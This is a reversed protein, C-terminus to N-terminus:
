TRAARTKVARGLADGWSRAQEVEGSRLPGETGTVVFSVPTAARSWGQQRLARAIGRSASGTLIQPKDFRTSFAASPRDVGIPLDRLWARMLPEHLPNAGKASAWTRKRPLSWAHTPAGVVLLDIDALRASDAADTTCAEADGHRSLGEAIARAIAETNGYASEFVVLSRM